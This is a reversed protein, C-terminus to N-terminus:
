YGIEDVRRFGEPIAEKEPQALALASQTVMPTRREEAEKLCPLPWDKVQEFSLAGAKPLPLKKAFERLEYFCACAALSSGQSALNKGTNPALLTTTGHPNKFPSLLMPKSKKVRRKQLGFHEGM